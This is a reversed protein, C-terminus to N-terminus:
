HPPTPLCGEQDKPKVPSLGCLSPSHWGKEKGSCYPSCSERIVQTEPRQHILAKVTDYESPPIRRYRQQVPVDDILPIDQMILDTCGHDGEFASFVPEHSLLLSRVKHQEADFLVSLDLARIQEQVSSVGQVQSNVTAVGGSQDSGVGSVGQPLGVIEM